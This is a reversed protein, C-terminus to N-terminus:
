TCCQLGGKSCISSHHRETDLARDKRCLKSVGMMWRSRFGKFRRSVLCKSMLARSQKEGRGLEQLELQKQPLM